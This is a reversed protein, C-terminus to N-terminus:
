MAQAEAGSVPGSRNDKWHASVKEGSSLSQYGANSWGPGGMYFSEGGKEPESATHPLGRRSHKRM